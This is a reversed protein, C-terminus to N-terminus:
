DCICLYPLVYSQASYNNVLVSFKFMPSLVRWLWMLEQIAHLQCLSVDIRSQCFTVCNLIFNKATNVDTYSQKLKNLPLSLEVIEELHQLIKPETPGSM